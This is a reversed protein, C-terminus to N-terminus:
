ANFYKPPRGRSGNSLPKKPRGPGKKAPADQNPVRPASSNSSINRKGNNNININSLLVVKKPRGPGKKAVQVGNNVIAKKKQYKEYDAATVFDKFVVDQSIAGTKTWDWAINHLVVTQNNPAVNGIKTVYLHVKFIPCSTDNPGGGHVFNSGFVCLENTGYTIITKICEDVDIPFDPNNILKERAISYALNPNISTVNPDACAHVIHQSYAWGSLNGKIKFPIVVAYDSDSDDEKAVHAKFDIHRVQERADPLSLLISIKALSHGDGFIDFVVGDAWTFLEGIPTNMNIPRELVYMHRNPDKDLNHSFEYTVAHGFKNIIGHEFLDLRNKEDLLDVVKQVATDYTKINRITVSPNNDVVNQFPIPIVKYGRGKSVERLVDPRMQASFFFSDFHTYSSNQLTHIHM